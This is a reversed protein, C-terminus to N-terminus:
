DLDVKTESDILHLVEILEDKYYSMKNVYNIDSLLGMKIISSFIPDIDQIRVSFEKSDMLTNKPLIGASIYKSGLKPSVSLSFRTSFIDKDGRIRNPNGSLSFYVPLDTEKLCEKALPPFDNLRPCIEVPPQIGRSNALNKHWIINQPKMQDEDLQIKGEKWHIMSTAFKIGLRDCIRHIITEPCLRLETSDVILYPLRQTDLYEVETHLSKWDSAESTFNQRSFSLIEGLTSYEQVWATEKIFIDWDTYGKRRAYYNLLQHQLDLNPQDLPISSVNKIGEGELLQIVKQDGSVKSLNWQEVKTDRAIMDLIYKQTSVKAKIPISQIIKNIRSEMSLLPNRILFLIPETVLSFLRKYEENTNLWYSMEKVVVKNKNNSDSELSDLIGKYGLDSEFGDQVPRMFPENVKFNVSPSMALSSELLTSGTRPPAIIMLLELNGSDVLQKVKEFYM